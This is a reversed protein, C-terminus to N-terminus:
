AGLTHGHAPPNTNRGILTSLGKGTWQKTASYGKSILSFIWKGHAYIAESRLQHAMAIYRQAEDFSIPGNELGRQMETM